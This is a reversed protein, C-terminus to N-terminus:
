RTKNCGATFLFISSGGKWNVWKGRMGKGNKMEGEGKCQLVNHGLAYSHRIVQFKCCMGNIKLVYERNELNNRM